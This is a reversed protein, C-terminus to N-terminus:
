LQRQELIGNFWESVSQRPPIGLESEFHQKLTDYQQKMDAFNGRLQHVQMLGFYGNEVLPFQDKMQQYAEAAEKLLGQELCFDALHQLYTWRFLRLREREGEAWLFQSEGFYDGKYMEVLQKYVTVSALTLEPAKLLEQEWVDVDVGVQDLQLRYGEQEYIVQVALAQEKLMKRIQYVTTHLQVGARAPDQEPWLVELLVEKHIAPANRHHLLFSFLEQTKNTRWPFSHAGSTSNVWHLSQLCCILTREKRDMDVNSAVEAMSKRIRTLTKGLRTDSVPKLIYDLANLEFAEVAYHNFATVFVIHVDPQKTFLRAALEMGGIEPMELDLFIADFKQLRALNLAEKPDILSAVIDIDEHKSLLKEMSRLALPEDDVLLVKM